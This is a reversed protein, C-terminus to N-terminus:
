IGQPKSRYFDEKRHFEQSILGKTQLRHLRKEVQALAMGLAQALDRATMPRRALMDVLARDTAAAFGPSSRESAAIVEAGEGLYAAIGAMEERNLPKARADTVPRVATNLQVKDPAIAAIERKLAKLEAENDNIGKLVMVELWIQGPYERRFAKLGSLLMALTLGAAPRNIRQFTSERGADLSPLVVDALALSQRVEPQYLLAGNTLVAVPIASIQKIATIIQKIEANLTPEGSGALTIFDPKIRDPQFYDQIERIIVDAAYPRRQLTLDTTRGVECYICDFTCTKPPILDVGLSMGLRRSNVPGFLHTM